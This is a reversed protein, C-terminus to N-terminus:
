RWWSLHGHFFTIITLLSMMGTEGKKEEKMEGSKSGVERKAWTDGGLETAHWRRLEREGRSHGQGVAGM